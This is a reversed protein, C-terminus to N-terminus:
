VEFLIKTAYSIEEAHAGAMYLIFLDLSLVRTLKMCLLPLVVKSCENATIM